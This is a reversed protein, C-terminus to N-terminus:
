LANTGKVRQKKDNWSKPNVSQKLYYRLRKGDFKFQLFINHNTYGAGHKLYYNISETTKQSAM